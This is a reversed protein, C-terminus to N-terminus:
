EDDFLKIVPKEKQEVRSTDNRGTIYGLKGESMFAKKKSDKSIKEETRKIEELTREKFDKLGEEKNEFVLSSKKKAKERKPDYLKIKEEKTKTKSVKSVKNKSPKVRTYILYSLIIYIFLGFAFFSITFVLSLILQDEM